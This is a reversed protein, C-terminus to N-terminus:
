EKRFQPPIYCQYRECCNRSGKVFVQGMVDNMNIPYPFTVLTNIETITEQVYQLTKWNYKEIQGIWEYNFLEKLKRLIVITDVTGFIIISRDNDDTLVLLRIFEHEPYYTKFKEIFLQLYDKDYVEQLFLFNNYKLIDDYFDLVISKDDLRIDYDVDSGPFQCLPLHDCRFILLLALLKKFLYADFAKCKNRDLNIMTDEICLSDHDASLCDHSVHSCDLSNTPIEGTTMFRTLQHLGVSFKKGAIGFTKFAYPDDRYFYPKTLKKDLKVLEDLEDSTLYRRYQSIYILFNVVDWLEFFDVKLLRFGNFYSNLTYNQVVPLYTNLLCVQLNNWQFQPWLGVNTLKGYTLTAYKSNFDALVHSPKRQKNNNNNKPM